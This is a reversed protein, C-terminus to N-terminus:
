KLKAKVVAITVQRVTDLTVYATVGIAIGYGVRGLVDLTTEAISLLQDEKSENTDAKKKKFTPIVNVTFM